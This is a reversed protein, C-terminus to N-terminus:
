PSGRDLNRRNRLRLSLRLSGIGEDSRRRSASRFPQGLLEDLSVAAALTGATAFIGLAVGVEGVLDAVQERRQHLDFM